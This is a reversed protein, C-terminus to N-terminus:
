GDMWGRTVAAQVVAADEAAVLAERLAQDAFLPGTPDFGKLRTGHAGVSCQLLRVDRADLDGERVLGIIEGVVIPSHTTVIVQRRRSATALLRSVVEIRRPHVGNEPEEFALLGTELPSAAMACLALVRLTGESIVRGSLWLGDQKIKLDIEGRAAVLETDIAEISPVVARVGRVVADFAPKWEPTSRLRHLFPVLHEGRAGIDDVERPPQAGRMREGPDLYVVRWAGIEHRLADFDPFREAGAYQRNSAFSHGLGVPEVFPHSQGGKRRVRFSSKGEADVRELAPMGKPTSAKTLRGLWEDTLFMQGTETRAGVAVRYRLDGGQAPSLDASFEIPAPNGQGEPFPRSFAEMPYGRLGADFAEALTREGVLRSLLVLSELLNSKGAANPGFVVVLRGFEAEVHRLSKFGRVTLRHLM